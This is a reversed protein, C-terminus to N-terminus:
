GSTGGVYKLRTAGKKDKCGKHIRTGCSMKEDGGGLIPGGSMFFSGVKIKPPKTFSYIFDGGFPGAVSIMVGLDDCICPTIKSIIGGFGSGGEEMKPLIKQVAQTVPLNFSGIILLGIVMGAGQIIRKNM